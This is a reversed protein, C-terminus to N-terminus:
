TCLVFDKWDLLGRSELYGRIEVAAGPKRTAVIVPLGPLNEWELVSIVPRERLERRVPSSSPSLFAEIHFGQKQLEKGLRRAAQGTGAVFVQKLRLCPVNGLYLAKTKYFATLSYMSSTRSFRDKRERWALLTKPVRFFKFGLSWLRLWLEYDEPLGLNRYGGAEIVAKRNFFATPHPVPSEVFLNHEIEISSSLNNIWSEYQRYGSSVESHPFSRIRCSIVAREGNNEAAVLQLSLREPHCLDDSDFRAIWRGTSAWLGLNLSPVLGDGGDLIKFRPDSQCFELAIERSNDTSGDDVMIVEFDTMTQISLSHLAASFYRGTNKFPLLVSITPYKM